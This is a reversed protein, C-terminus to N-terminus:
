QILDLLQKVYDSISPVFIYGGILIILILLVMFKNSM